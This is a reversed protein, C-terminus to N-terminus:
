ERRSDMGISGADTKLLKSQTQGGLNLHLKTSSLIFAHQIWAPRPHTATAARQGRAQDTWALRPSDLSNRIHIYMHVGSAHRSLGGSSPICRGQIGCSRIRDTPTAERNKAESERTITRTTSACPIYLATDTTTKLTRLRAGSDKQQLSPSGSLDKRVARSRSLEDRRESVTPSQTAVTRSQEYGVSTSVHRAAPIRQALADHIPWHFLSSPFM